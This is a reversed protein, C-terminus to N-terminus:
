AIKQYYQMAFCLSLYLAFQMAAEYHTFYRDKNNDMGKIFKIVHVGAPFDDKEGVLHEINVVGVNECYQEIIAAQVGNM